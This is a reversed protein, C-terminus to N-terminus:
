KPNQQIEKSLTTMVFPCRKEIEGYIEYKDKASLMSLKEVYERLKIDYALEELLKQKENILYNMKSDKTLHALFQASFTTLSREKIPEDDWGMLFSETCDLAHAFLTVRDLTLNQEYDREVRCIASKNKYGMKKALDDQSMGLAKRRQKIREGVTM